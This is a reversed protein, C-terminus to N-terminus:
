DRPFPSTLRRSLHDAVQWLTLRRGSGTPCEVTFDDGYYHHFKQLAEILLFNLPFWIPGRWNSSGGFLGTTSEAPDYRVEYEHGDVPLRSPHDRHYRSLARVGHASLSEAPAPMRKLLGKRRRGPVPALARRG